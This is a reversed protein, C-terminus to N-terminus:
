HASCPCRWASWSWRSPWGPAWPPTTRTASCRCRRARSRRCRSRDSATAMAYNGSLLQDM